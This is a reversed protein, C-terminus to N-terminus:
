IACLLVQQLSSQLDFLLAKAIGMYGQSVRGCLFVQHLSSLSAGALRETHLPRGIQGQGDLLQLLEWRVRWHGHLRPLSHCLSPSAPALKSSWLAASRGQGDLLQLLEWRVRWHGHLRPLSHCLSPSAPAPKSSWLAASRGQGDLLQLLEWRGQCHGHPRPLGECVSLSAPASPRQDDLHQVLEGCGQCHGHLRPLSHCLSLSAPASPRQGALHQVLMECTLCTNTWVVIVLFMQGTNLSERKLSEAKTWTHERSTVSVEGFHCGTM